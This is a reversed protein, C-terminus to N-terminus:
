LAGVSSTPSPEVEGLCVWFQGPWALAMGPENGNGEDSTAVPDGAKEAGGDIIGGVVGVMGTGRHRGDGDSNGNGNM